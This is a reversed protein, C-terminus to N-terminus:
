EEQADLMIPLDDLVLALTLSSFSPATYSFFMEMDLGVHVHGSVYSLQFAEKDLIVAKPFSEPIM